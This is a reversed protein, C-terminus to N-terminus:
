GESTSLILEVRADLKWFFWTQWDHGGYRGIEPMEGGGDQADMVSLLIKPLKTPLLYFPPPYWLLVQM